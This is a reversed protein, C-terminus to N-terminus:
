KTAALAASIPSVPTVTIDTFGIERLWGETVAQSHPEGGQNNNLLLILGFQYPFPQSAQEPLHSHIILRGGAPMWGHVHALLSRARERSFGQIVHSLLVVDCDPFTDNFIDAGRVDIRESLGAETVFEAAVEAVAPQDVATVPLDPYHRAFAISYAASACGLDVLRHRGTLAAQAALDEAVLQSSNRFVEAWRRAWAQPGGHFEGTYQADLQVPADERLATDLRMLKAFHSEQHTALPGLYRPSGSTLYTQAIPANRYQDGARTVLREGEVALLLVRASREPLGVKVAVEEATAPGADLADFVGLRVAAFLAKSSLYGMMLRHLRMSDEAAARDGAVPTSM